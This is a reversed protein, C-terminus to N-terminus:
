RQNIFPFRFLFGVFVVTFVCNGVQTYNQIGLNHILNPCVFM